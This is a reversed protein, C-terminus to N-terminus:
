HTLYGRRELLIFIEGWSMEERKERREKAVLLHIIKKERFFDVVRVPYSYRRGDFFLDWHGKKFFSHESLDPVLLSISEEDWSVVFSRLSKEEKKKSFKLYSELPVEPRFERDFLSVRCSNYSRDLFDWWLYGFLYAFFIEASFLIFIESQM